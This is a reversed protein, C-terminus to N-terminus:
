QTLQQRMADILKDVNSDNHTLYSAYDQRQTLRLSTGEAIVDIVKPDRAADAVAWEVTTPPNNPREVVSSVLEVDDQQKSRGITLRVDQYEGLKSTINGILVQHFVATYRQQQDPTATRWFRGLCFRALGDVDLSQDIIPGLVKRREETSGTRRMAGLILDSTSKIFAIAREGSTDALAPVAAFLPTAGLGALLFMRREFM